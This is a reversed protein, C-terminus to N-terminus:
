CVQCTSDMSLCASSATALNHCGLAINFEFNEKRTSIRRGKDNVMVRKSEEPDDITSCHAVVVIGGLGVAAVSDNCVM